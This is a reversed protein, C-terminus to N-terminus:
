SVSLLCFGVGGDAWHAFGEGMSLGFHTRFFL